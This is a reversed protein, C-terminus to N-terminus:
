ETYHEGGQRTSTVRLWGDWLDKMDVGFEDSWTNLTQRLGESLSIVPEIKIFKRNSCDIANRVSQETARMYIQGGFMGSALGQGIEENADIGHRIVIGTGGSMQEFARDGVNGGIVILASDKFGSKGRMNCGALSGASEKIFLSGQRMAYGASDGVNGEIIIRGGNLCEGTNNQTHTIGAGKKMLHLTMGEPLLSGFYDGSSGALTIYVTFAPKLSQQTKEL